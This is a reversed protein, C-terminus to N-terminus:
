VETSFQLKAFLYIYLNTPEKEVITVRLFVEQTKKEKQM